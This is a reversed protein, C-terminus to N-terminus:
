ASYASLHGLMAVLFSGGASALCNSPSSPLNSFYKEGSGPPPSQGPATCAGFQRLTVGTAPRDNQRRDARGSKACAAFEQNKRSKTSGIALMGTVCTSQHRWRRIVSLHTESDPGSHD